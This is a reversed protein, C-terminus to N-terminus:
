GLRFIRLFMYIVRGACCPSLNILFLLLCSIGYIWAVAWAWKKQAKKFDEKNKFSIARWAMENGKIAFPLNVLILFLSALCSGTTEKLFLQICVYLIAYFIGFFFNINFIVWWYGMLFSGWNFKNIYENIHFDKNVPEDGGFIRKYTTIPNSFVTEWYRPKNDDIYDYDNYNNTYNNNSSNIQNNIGNQTQWRRDQNLIAKKCDICLPDNGITEKGCGTCYAM